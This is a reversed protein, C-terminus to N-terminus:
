GSARRPREDGSGCTTPSARGRPPLLRVPLFRASGGCRTWWRGSWPGQPSLRDFAALLEVEDAGVGDGDSTGPGEGDGGEGDTAM